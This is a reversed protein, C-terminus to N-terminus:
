FFALGSSALPAWLMSILTHLVVAKAAQEHMQSVLILLLM